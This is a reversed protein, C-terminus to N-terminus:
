RLYLGLYSLDRSAATEEPTLVERSGVVLDASYVRLIKRYIQDLMMERFESSYAFSM